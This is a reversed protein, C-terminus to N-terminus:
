CVVSNLSCSKSSDSEILVNFLVNLYPASFCLPLISLAFINMLLLFTVVLISFIGRKETLLFKRFSYWVQCSDAGLASACLMTSTIRIGPAYNAQCQAPPIKFVNTQLLVPSPLGGTTILGFGATILRRGDPVQLNAAAIPITAINPGTIPTRTHVISVDYEFTLRNYKQNQKIRDVAFTLGAAVNHTGALVVLGAPSPRYLSFECLNVTAQSYM